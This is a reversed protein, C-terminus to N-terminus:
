SMAREGFRERWQEQLEQAGLFGLREDTPGTVVDWTSGTWQSAQQLKLKLEPDRRAGEAEAGSGMLATRRLPVAASQSTVSPSRRASGLWEDSSCDLGRSSSM